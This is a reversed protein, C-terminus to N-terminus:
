LINYLKLAISATVDGYSRVASLTIARGPYFIGVSSIPFVHDAIVKGEKYKEM